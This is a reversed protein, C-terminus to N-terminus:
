KCKILIYIKIKIYTSLVLNAPIQVLESTFHYNTGILEIFISSTKIDIVPKIIYPESSELGIQIFSNIENILTNM